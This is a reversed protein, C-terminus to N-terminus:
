ESKPALAALAARAKTIRAFGKNLTERLDDVTKSMNAYDEVTEELGDALTEFDGGMKRAAEIEARMEDVTLQKMRPM